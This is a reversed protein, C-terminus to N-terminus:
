TSLANSLRLYDLQQCVGSFKPSGAKLENQGPLSRNNARKQQLFSVIRQGKHNTKRSWPETWSQTNLKAKM